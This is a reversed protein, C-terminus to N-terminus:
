EIRGKEFTVSKFVLEDFGYVVGCFVFERRNM